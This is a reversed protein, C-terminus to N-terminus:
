EGITTGNTVLDSIRPFTRIPSTTSSWSRFIPQTSSPNTLNYDSSATQPGLDYEEWNYTLADGDEDSGIAELEFPTNAPIYFGSVGAETSSPHQQDM